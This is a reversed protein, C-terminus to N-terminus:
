GQSSKQYGCPYYFGFWVSNSLISVWSCVGSWFDQQSRWWSLLGTVQAKHDKWCVCVSKSEPYCIKFYHPTTNMWEMNVNQMWPVVLKPVSNTLKSYVCEGLTERTKQRCSLCGLALGADPVCHLSSCLFGLGQGRSGGRQFLGLLVHSLLPVDVAVPHFPVCECAVCLSALDSRKLLEDSQDFSWNTLFFFDSNLQAHVCEKLQRKM